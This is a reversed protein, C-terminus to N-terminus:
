TPAQFLLDVCDVHLTVVFGVPFFPKQGATTMDMDNQADKMNLLQKATVKM